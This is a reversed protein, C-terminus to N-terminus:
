TVKRGENILAFRHQTSISFHTSYGKKGEAPPPPFRARQTIYAPGASAAFCGKGVVLWSAFVNVRVRVCVHVCLLYRLLEEPLVGRQGRSIVDDKWQRGLPRGHGSATRVAACGWCCVCACVRASLCVSTRRHHSVPLINGSSLLSGELCRAGFHQRMLFAASQSRSPRVSPRDTQLLM